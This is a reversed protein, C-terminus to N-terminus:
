RKVIPIAVQFTEIWQHQFTDRGRILVSDELVDVVLGQKWDAQFVTTVTGNANRVKQNIYTTAPVQARWYGEANGLLTVDPGDHFWNLDQHLHGYFFVVNPASSLIQVLRDHQTSIEPPQHLFVFTPRDHRAVAALERELWDMQADSLLATVTGGSTEGAPVGESGLFIFPIGGLSTAFYVSDRGVYDLFRQRMTDVPENAHYEHNGIALYHRPPHVSTKLTLDFLPYDQQQGLETLDGVIVLADADPAADDLDALSDRMDSMTVPYVDSIHVDSLVHLRLKRREHSASALAPASPGFATAALAAGGGAILTRRSVPTM